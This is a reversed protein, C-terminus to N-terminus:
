RDKRGEKWGTENRQSPAEFSIGTRFTPIIVLPFATLAARLIFFFPSCPAQIPYRLNNKILGDSPPNFGCCGNPLEAWQFMPRHVALAACCCIRKERSCLHIYHQKCRLIPLTMNCIVTWKLHAYKTAEGYQLLYCYTACQRSTSIYRENGGEEIIACTLMKCQNIYHILSTSTIPDYGEVEPNLQPWNTNDFGLRGLAARGARLRRPGHSSNILINKNNITGVSYGHSSNRKILKLEM